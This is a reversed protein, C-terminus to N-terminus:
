MEGSWGCVCGGGRGEVHGEGRGRAGILRTTLQGDADMMRVVEDTVEDGGPHADKM